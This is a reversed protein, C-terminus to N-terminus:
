DLGVVRYGELDVLDRDAGDQALDQGVLAQAVDDGVAGDLDVGGLPGAFHHHDAGIRHGVQDPGVGVNVTEHGGEHHGLVRLGEDVGDLGGDLGAHPLD